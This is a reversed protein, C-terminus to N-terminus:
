RRVTVSTGYMYPNYGDRITVYVVFPVKRRGKLRKRAKASIPVKVKGRVGAPLQAVAGGFTNKLKWKNAALYNVGLSVDVTCDIPCTMYVSLGKRLVAALRAKGARKIKVLFPKEFVRILTTGYQRRGDADGSLSVTHIGPETGPPLRLRADVQGDADATVTGLGVPDSHLTLDLTSNPVWGGGQIQLACGQICPAPQNCNAGCATYGGADVTGLSIPTGTGPRIPDSPGPDRAILRGAGDTYREIFFRAAADHYAANPHFSENGIVGLVDNGGRLGNIWPDDSCIEHGASVSSLDVYTLGAEAAADAVASNIAPIVHEKIWRREAEVIGRGFVELSGCSKAPDGIVSPYGFAVISADPFERRLGTFTTRINSFAEGNITSMVGETFTTDAVCDDILCTKAIEGFRSDNGGIGITVLDPTRAKAFERVAEIQTQGGFVGFPSLPYQVRSESGLGVNATVAGSCAVFISESLPIGLAQRIQVPYARGHRHCLNEHTAAPRTFLGGPPDTSGTETDCDRGRIWRLGAYRDPEHRRPVTTHRIYRGYHLDTGCDYRLEGPLLGEGSTYSDGFSAIRTPTIGTAGREVALNDITFGAPEESVRRVRFGAVGRYSITIHNIGESQATSSGVTAGSADFYDVVVSNRSDIYGVDLSFGNVTAPTASGPTTFHAHIPGQFKPTGSLAPTTPQAGDESTFVESTFRVGRPLYQDKVSTGVPVEDFTIADPSQAARLTAQGAAHFPDAASSSAAQASPALALAILAAAAARAAHHLRL